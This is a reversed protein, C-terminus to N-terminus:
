VNQREDAAMPTQRSKPITHPILYQKVTSDGVVIGSLEWGGQTEKSSYQDVM